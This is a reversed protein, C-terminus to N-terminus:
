KKVQINPTWLQSRQQKLDCLEATLECSGLALEYWSLIRDSIETGTLGELAHFM